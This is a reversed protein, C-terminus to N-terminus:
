GQKLIKEKAALAADKQKVHEGNIRDETPYAEPSYPTQLGADIAGKCAAYVLSGKTPAHLGIDLVFDKVGAKAAKKGALLGTLYASPTNRKGAFGYQALQRSDAAAIVADGKETFKVVQAIVARLTKRVVLRPKRSKLLALRKQYDTRGQRRRRFHVQFRPGTAQTM